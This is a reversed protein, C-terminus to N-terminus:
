DLKEEGTEASKMKLAVTAIKEHFRAGQINGDSLHVADATRAHTRAQTHKHLLTLRPVTDQMRQPTM